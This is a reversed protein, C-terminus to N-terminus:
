GLVPPVHAPPPRAVIAPREDLRRPCVQSRRTLAVIRPPQAPAPMVWAATRLTPTWRGTEVPRLAPAAAGVTASLVPRDGTDPVGFALPASTWGPLGWGMALALLLGVRLFRPM